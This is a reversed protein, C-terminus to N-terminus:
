LMLGDAQRPGRTATVEISTTARVREEGRRSSVVLDVSSAGEGATPPVTVRVTREATAGLTLVTDRAGEIIAEWGTPASVSLVVTDTVNGVNKVDFHLEVRDGPHAGQVRRDASAAIRVSPDVDLNIPTRIPTVDPASFVVFALRTSGAPADVPVGLTVLVAHDRAPVLTGQRRSIIPATGTPVVEYTVEASAQLEAPVAVSVVRYSRAGHQASSSRPNGVILAVVACLLAAADGIGNRTM